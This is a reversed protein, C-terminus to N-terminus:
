GWVGTEYRIYQLENMNDPTQRWECSLSVTSDDKSDIRKYKKHKKLGM